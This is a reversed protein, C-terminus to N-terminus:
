WETDLQIGKNDPSSDSILMDKQPLEKLQEDNRNKESAAQEISGRAAAAEDMIKRLALQPLKLQVILLKFKARIRQLKSSIDVRANDPNEKKKIPPSQSKVPLGTFGDDSADGSFRLGFLEDSSPFEDVAVVLDNLSKRIKKMRKGVDLDCRDQAELLGSVIAGGMAVAVGRMYGLEVGIEIAKMLGLSKGDQFGTKLGSLRGEERGRERHPEYPDLCLDEFDISDM